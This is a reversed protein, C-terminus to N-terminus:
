SASLNTLLMTKMLSNVVDSETIMPSPPQTMKSTPPISVPASQPTGGGNMMIPMITTTGPTNYYPYNQIQHSMTDILGSKYLSILQETIEPGGVGPRPKATPISSMIQQSISSARAGADAIKAGPIMQANSDGVFTAGKYQSAIEKASADTLNAYPITGTNDKQKYQGKKITAGMETAAQQVAKSVASTQGVESPPVVVVSYGKDQLAKIAQKVGAAGSKPDGYDNTGAMLVATPKGSAQGGNKPSAKVNGGFRFYKDGENTPISIPKGGSLIEFHVHPGTSRGTSGVKGLVVGPEVPQGSKVNISSMHGYFSSTGGPHSVTVSNGYGDIWGAQTVKGPQVASILTGEPRPYDVGTHMKGWRWGYGSSVSRSPLEGGEVTMDQLEGSMDEPSPLNEPDLNYDLMMQDSGAAASAANVVSAFTRYVFEEFRYVSSEFKSVIDTFPDKQISAKQKEEQAKLREKLKQSVGGKEGTAVESVRDAGWGGLFGGAMSGLVFGVGPIPILAQGIAGGLLSGALSGVAGTAAKGVSEGEQLGQAFDLGAFISNVIGVSRLGSFKLKSGVTVPKPQRLGKVNQPRGQRGRTPFMSGLFGAVDLAGSALSSLLNGPSGFSSAINLNALEKIKRKDPLKKADLETNKVQLFKVFNVYNGQFKEVSKESPKGLSVINNAVSVLPSSLTKAM